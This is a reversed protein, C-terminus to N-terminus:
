SAFWRVSASNPEPSCGGSTATKWVVPSMVLCVPIALAIAAAAATLL